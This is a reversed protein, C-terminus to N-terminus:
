FFFIHNTHSYNLMIAGASCFVGMFLLMEIIVIWIIVQNSVCTYELSLVGDRVANSCFMITMLVVVVPWSKFLLSFIVMALLLFLRVEFVSSSTSIVLADNNYMVIYFIYIIKNYKKLYGKNTVQEKQM